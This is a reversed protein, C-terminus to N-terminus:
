GMGALSKIRRLDSIFAEYAQDREQGDPLRLLYSPHFTVYGRQAGFKIEGRSKLLPLPKGALAMLATAGLAVVLGPRVFDLEKMLWWRYHKVDSATPKSHIRRKGREEFKFHKVANTIYVAKRDIGVQAFARDLLQGAPGVFPRGQIDEADGPQEGVFAILPDQPGEGLVARAAGPVLPPSAAILRNLDILSEPQRGQQADIVADSNQKLPV